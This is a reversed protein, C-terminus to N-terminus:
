KNKKYFKFVRKIITRSITKQKVFVSKFKIKLFQEVFYNKFITRKYKIFCFRTQLSSINKM